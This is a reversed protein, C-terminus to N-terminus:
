GIVVEAVQKKMSMAQNSKFYGRMLQALININPKQLMTYHNGPITHFDISPIYKGWEKAPNGFFSQDDQESSFLVAPGSYAQPRYQFLAHINAKYMEFLRNFYTPEVGAPLLNERCAQEFIYSLQEDKSMSRLKPISYEINDGLVKNLERSMALILATDDSIINKAIMQQHPQCFHSDIMVLISVEEGPIQLQRAMEFAIVGGISWGGLKYPGGPQVTRLFRLYFRAIEEVKELPEDSQDLGMPQFAYFDQDDGIAQALDRYLLVSGGVPLVCFFPSDNGKDQIKILPSTLDADHSRHILNALNEVTPDHFLTVLSIEVNFYKKVRAALVVALLSHGGLDFFDDKIGVRESKLVEAWIECLRKEITDRPAVYNRVKNGKQFTLRQLARRDYKGSVTVPISPLVVISVPVMYIPLRMKMFERIVSVDKEDSDTVIFAVLFKEGPAEEKAMVVAQKVSPAQTLISEIEELEIRFGRIKVQQDIRGLFQINGDALCRVRDGTKYLRVASRKDQTWHIFKKETLKPDNWYGRALGAGGIYLEGPVGTPVPELHPDLVVINVNALPRGIPIEGNLTDEKELRKTTAVVTAETPGYSNILVPKNGELEFWQEVKAPLVREGGIIITKLSEPLEFIKEEGMDTVLQHWYTTPIDLMTIGWRGCQDFFARTSAIMDETRLILTGGNILALYIEEAAADFSISSFQLVRDQSTIGYRETAARVFNVLARHEVMVGKPQGTTGSTYIIYACHDPQSVSELDPTDEYQFLAEDDLRMVPLQCTKFQQIFKEQTLLCRLAADNIIEDLRNQPYDPDLPVYVGGAKLIGLLGAVMDLSREVCIGIHQGATVGLRRLVKALQNARENLEGYTWGKDETMVAIKQPQAKAQEEFLEHLCPASISHDLPRRLHHSITEAEQHDLLTYESINKDPDAVAQELLREYHRAMREITEPKFLDKNFQIIGFLGDTQEIFELILDFKATLNEQNLLTLKLNELPSMELPTNQLVFMVQFWPSHSLNRQPNLEEVLQEFPVHPHDYAELNTRRVKKLLEPFTPNGSLDTRLVLTNVFFGVISELDRTHRNAIPTGIVIDEQSSYRSLLMVFITQLTMFFTVGHRQSLTRAQRCLQADLNFHIVKGRFSEVAPRPFDLPLELLPPVGKLQDRWYNIQSKLFDGQLWQRQWYAFDPYQLPLSPLDIPAGAKHSRYLETMEKAIIGVSWGDSIIHHITMLLVYEQPGLSIVKIRFLPGGKLDFPTNAEKDALNQAAESRSELTLDSLNIYEVPVRLHKHIIQRPQGDTATFTTRLSEHRNVIKDIVRQLIAIDLEGEVKFAIPMNYTASNKEFENLFWLRIQSSSLPIDQDRSVPTLSLQEMVYKNSEIAQSIQGITPNEFFTRFPLGTGFMNRIRAVVQMAQLSDGGLEFFNDHIGIQEKRLVEQWIAALQKQMDTQPAMYDQSLKPRSSEPSPLAKRDLKGNPSLPLTDLYVYHAPVMYEPLQQMLFKRWETVSPVDGDMALYAVLQSQPGLDTRAIVAVSKIGPYQNFVSEIEGLEIRFGRIKVQHDLRGLYEINGDPLYRALDGTKYLRDKPNQSFPNPIFKEATLEERNHYGRALQIGGIHLEGPMGVAQPNLASDLIYIQTNSVPRGIPVSKLDNDPRCAWYTVDIAAETPGYLNHLEAKVRKFFKKQTDVSLAEGSCIVRRLSDITELGEEELFIQLMSPVFHLTTIKEQIILNKLYLSDQHGSPKAVVLRAGFMLPWFFEWVSVDFSFPTKQLVADDSSLQYEKQMWLLRNLLGIHTNMAGKPKGMSGSTYIMYALHEASNQCPPNDKPQSNLLPWENEVVLIQLDPHRSKFSSLRDNLRAQTLLIPVGSDTLMFELRDQPYEPDLPVYAGGSKLIALLSIVMDLSRELCVGVLVDPGVGKKRLVHALQNAQTNLQEYTLSRNEFTVAVSQPTAKAQQEIIQHVHKDPLPSGTDNWEILIKQKEEDSFLTMEVVPLDVKVACQELVRMFHRGAQISMASNFIECSLELDVTIDQSQHTSGRGFDHVQLAMSGYSHGPHIWEVKVPGKYFCTGQWMHYNLLVDYLPNQLSNTLFYQGHQMAKLVTRKIKTMLSFITDNDMIEMQIPLLRVILGTVNKLGKERRNHIPIGINFKRKGSILSLYVAYVCMFFNFKLADASGSENGLSRLLQDIKDTIQPGISKSIRRIPNAQRSPPQGYFNLPEDKKLLHQEWYERDKFFRSSQQYKKEDTIYDIFQPIPAKTDETGETLQRYLHSVAYFTSQQSWGDTIIHHQGMYWIFEHGSKKFLACKFLCQELAFATKASHEIWARAASHPDPAQSFDLYIVQYTRQPLIKAQPIGDVEEFVTRFSDRQNVVTQFSKQFIEPDIAEYITYVITSNYAPNYPDLKQGVWMVMQSETLPFYANPALVKTTSNNAEM